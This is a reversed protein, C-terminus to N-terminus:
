RIKSHHPGEAGEEFMLENSREGFQYTKKEKIERERERKQERQNLNKM